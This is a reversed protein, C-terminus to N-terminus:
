VNKGLLESTSTTGARNEEKPTILNLLNAGVDTFIDGVVKGTASATAVGYDM